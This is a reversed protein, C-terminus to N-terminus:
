FKFLSISWTHSQTTELTPNDRQSILQLLLNCLHLAECTMQLFDKESHLHIDCEFCGQNNSYTQVSTWETLRHSCKNKENSQEGLRWIERKYNSLGHTRVSKGCEQLGGVADNHRPSSQGGPAAGPAASCRHAASAKGSTRLSTPQAPPPSSPFAPPGTRDAAPKRDPWPHRWPAWQSPGPSRGCDLCSATGSPTVTMWINLICYCVHSFLSTFRSIPINVSTKNM